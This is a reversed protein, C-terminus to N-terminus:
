KTPKCREDVEKPTRIAKLAKLPLVVAEKAEADIFLLGADTCSVIRACLYTKNEAEIQDRANWKNVLDDSSHMFGIVYAVLAMGILLLITAPAFYSYDIRACRSAWAAFALCCAGIAVIMIEKVFIFYVAISLAGIVLSSIISVKAMLENSDTKEDAFHMLIYKIIGIVLALVAICALALPAAEWAFSLNDSLKSLM